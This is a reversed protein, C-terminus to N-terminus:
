ENGQEAGFDPQGIVGSRGCIVPWLGLDQNSFLSEVPDGDRRCGFILLEGVM